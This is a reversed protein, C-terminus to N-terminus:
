VFIGRLIPTPKKFVFFCSTFLQTITIYFYFLCINLKQRNITIIFSNHKYDFGDDSHITILSKLLTTKINSFEMM